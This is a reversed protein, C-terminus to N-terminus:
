ESVQTNTPLDFLAYLSLLRLQTIGQVSNRQHYNLHNKSLQKSAIPFMQQPVQPTFQITHRLKDATSANVDSCINVRVIVIFQFLMIIHFQKNTIM